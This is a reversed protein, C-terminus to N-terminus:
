SECWEGEDRMGTLVHTSCLLVASQINGLGLIGGHHRSLHAM